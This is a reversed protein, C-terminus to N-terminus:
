SKGMRLLRTVRLRPALLVLGALVLSVLTLLAAVASISPEVGSRVQSWMEVPITRFQPTNLFLAVVVEDWSSVFALVGGVLAAPAVLPLTIRLMTVTQNAGSIRAAEEVSRDVNTLAALVNVFVFPLGIVAHAVGLSLAGGTFGIRAYVLYFALGAVVLPVTMPLVALVSALHALPGRGRSALLALSTGAVMAIVAAVLGVQLSNAFATSWSRDELVEQFWRLSFGGPPFVIMSTPNFATAIVIVTPTVLFVAMLVAAIRVGPGTRM